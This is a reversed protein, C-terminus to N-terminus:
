KGLILISGDPRVINYNIEIGNNKLINYEVKGWVSNVSVGESYHFVQVSGNAGQAFEKSANEWLPKADAWDMNKTLKILNKGEKTMELTIGNNAKAWKRAALEATKDGSWFVRTPGGPEAAPNIVPKKLYHQHIGKAIKYTGVAIGVETTTEGLQYPHFSTKQNGVLYSLNDSLIDMSQIFSDAVAQPNDVAQKIGEAKRNIMFGPRTITYRLNVSAEFFRDWIGGFYAHTDSRFPYHHVSQGDYPTGKYIKGRNLEWQYQLEEERQIIRNLRLRLLYEPSYIMRNQNVSNDYTIDSSTNQMNDHNVPITEAPLENESVTTTGRFAVLDRIIEGKSKGNAYAIQVYEKNWWNIDQTENGRFYQGFKYDDGKQTWLRYNAAAVEFTGEMNHRKMYSHDGVSFFDTWIFSNNMAQAMQGFDKYVQTNQQAFDWHDNYGYQQYFSPDYRGMVAEGYDFDYTAYLGMPDWYNVPNNGAYLYKNMSQPDYEDILDRATFRGTSPDYYRNRAYYLDSENDLYHGTYGIGGPAASSDFTSLGSDFSQGFAM